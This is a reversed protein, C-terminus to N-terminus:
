GHRSMWDLLPTRDFYDRWLTIRGDTVTFVGAVALELWEVSGDDAHLGFRDLRENLVTGSDVTGSELQHLTRWEISAFPAMFPALTARVADTGRVPGFPVNDYVCDTDLLALAGDLDRSEVLSVFRSVLEGPSSPAVLPM